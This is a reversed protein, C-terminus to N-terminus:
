KKAARYGRVWDRALDTLDEESLDGDRELFAVVQTARLRNVDDLDPDEALVVLQPVLAPLRGSERISRVLRHFSLEEQRSMGSFRFLLGRFFRDLDLGVEELRDAETGHAAEGYNSYAVRDFRDGMIRLQLQLFCGLKGLDYCLEAHDRAVQAPREDMSCRGVPPHDRYISLATAHDGTMLAHALAPQHADWGTSDTEARYVPPEANVLTAVYTWDALASPSPRSAPSIYDPQIWLSEEDTTEDKRTLVLRQRDDALSGQTIRFGGRASYSSLRPPLRDDGLELVLRYTGKDIGTDTGANSPDGQSSPTTEPFFSFVMGEIGPEDGRGLRGRVLRIPRLERTAAELAHEFADTAPWSWRSAARPPLHEPLALVDSARGGPESRSPACDLTGAALLLAASTLLARSAGARHTPASVDSADRDGDVRM